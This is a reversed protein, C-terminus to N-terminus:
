RRRALLGLGFLPENEVPFIGSKDDFVAAIEHNALLAEVFPAERPFVFPYRVRRDQFGAPLPGHGNESLWSEHITIVEHDGKTLGLRNFLVYSAPTELLMALFEYPKDVCQLTGSTHLLDLRPFSAAATKLDSSFRLEPGTMAEGARRAMEPTEVVMWDLRVSAPLVARAAFYHAGCAGGFDLVRIEPARTSMLVSCLSYASSPNVQIPASKRMLGDRYAKTKELVVQVIDINEYGNRTCVKMAEAFSPYRSQLIPPLERDGATGTGPPPNIAGHPASARDIRM